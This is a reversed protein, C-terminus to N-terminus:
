EYISNVIVDVWNTFYNVGLSCDDGFNLIQPFGDYFIIPFVIKSGAYLPFNYM